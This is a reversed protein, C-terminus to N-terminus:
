KIMKHLLAVEGADQLDNVMSQLSVPKELNEIKAIHSPLNKKELVIPSENGIAFSLWRGEADEFVESAEAGDRWEGEFMQNRARASAFLNDGKAGALIVDLSNNVALKKLSPFGDYANMDLLIHSKISPINLSSIVKKIFDCGGAVQKMEQIDTFARGMHPLSPGARAPSAKRVMDELEDRQNKKKDDDSDDSDQDVEDKKVKGEM